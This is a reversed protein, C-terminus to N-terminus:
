SLLLNDKFIERLVITAYMGRKLLFEYHITNKTTRIASRLPRFLGHRYHCPLLRLDSLRLGELVLIDRYLEISSEACGLSPYERDLYSWGSREIVKNLLLNFLYSSYADRLLSFYKERLSSRSSGTAERLYLREYYLGRFDGLFRKVTVATDEYPYLRRLLEDAFLDERLLLLYKGLLHTNGRHFGFRQYGYYSPLGFVEIREVINKFTEVDHESVNNIVITFKNGVHHKTSPKVRVYGILEARLSKTEVPLCSPNILTRRTFVYSVTRADKDKLGFIYFNGVPIDLTKALINLAKLTELNRKVLKIVAYEGKEISYGLNEFDVLEEVYFNEPTPTFTRNIKYDTLTYKVGTVYDLPHPYALM